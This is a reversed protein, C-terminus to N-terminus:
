WTVTRIKEWTKENWISMDRDGLIYLFDNVYVARRVGEQSMAKVLDLKDGTYSIIYGGKGGPIFFFNHREDILFAHHNNEVETWGEDLMYKSVETPNYKNSVDFLSLKVKGEERGVGLIRTASIPHLYSSFGPIKLEGTMKPAAPNSLDLIYFPDTQRFTVLYGKDGIFRASYIRETLGLGKVSGMIQM